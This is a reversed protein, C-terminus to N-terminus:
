TVKIAIRHCANNLYGKPNWGPLLMPQAVGKSDTAKVWVEYYGSDPFNVSATFHQWAFRNVPKEVICSKWTSGFDISYEMKSVELDGAWAHGRIKLAKGKNIIAGSKPYTILSKVPMSEIICMNEEKVKEGPAVPKCPVRYADGTMKPGDHVKNRISIRNIWKGSVSAPWGGAVLRLPYGHAIPIDEDNMKFAILTEDELAKSMPCGRSIPEKNPDRSLHIDTAHYGIYVADKKIGADELVDRLRVGTWNACHVAGVTWQNGKAPPSFESRGNGGCEITLQYTYHKFKSKLESLTYTKEKAVSEGDIKLVWNKVDIDEPILGNNRIFMCSNPTVKDDLIHAQAEINWPKDNLVIMDKNKNFMKYPDPDQLALPVYGDLMKSGFVINSGILTAFSGLTAKKVFLRRKM